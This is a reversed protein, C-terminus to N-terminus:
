CRINRRILGLTTLNIYWPKDTKKYYSGGHKISIGVLDYNFDFSYHQFFGVLIQGM